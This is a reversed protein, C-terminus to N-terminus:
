QYSAPVKPVVLSKTSTGTFQLFKFDDDKMDESFTSQIEAVVEAASWDAQLHLKGVLSFSALIDRKQSNPLVGNSSFLDM